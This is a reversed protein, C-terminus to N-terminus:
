SVKKAFKSIITIYDICGELTLINIGPYLKLWNYGFGEMNALYNKYSVPSTATQLRNDVVITELPPVKSIGFLFESDRTNTIKINEEFQNTKIILKPYIPMDADSTSNVIISERVFFDNYRFTQITNNEWAFPSDCLITAKYGRITNGVKIVVPNVLICNYYIYEMDPQVIQLPLYTKRGFLYGSILSSQTANLEDRVTFTIPISLAPSQKVGLLYNIPNRYISQTIPEVNAGEIETVGESGINSIMLGFESGTIGGYIFNLGFFSM